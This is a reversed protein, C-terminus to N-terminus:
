QVGSKNHWEERVLSISLRDDDRSLQANSECTPCKLTYILPLRFKGDGDMELEMEHHAQHGCKECLWKLHYINVYMAWTYDM